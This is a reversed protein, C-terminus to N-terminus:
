GHLKKWVYIYMTIYILCELIIGLWTMFFNMFPGYLFIWILPFLWIPSLILVVLNNSLYNSYKKNLVSFILQHLHSSDAQMMPKHNHYRRMMSFILEFVPYFLILFAYWTILSPHESFFLITVFGVLLGICYAGLDGAFMKGIPYNFIISIITLILLLNYINIFSTSNLAHALILMSLLISIFSFYLIGNAGDILNFGNALVSLSIILLIALVFPNSLFFERLYPIDIIPLTTEILTLLLISSIVIATLRVKPRINNFIDEILTILVTPLLAFVSMRLLNFGAFDFVFVIISFFIFFISGGLRPTYGDHIKQVANYGHHFEKMLPDNWFKILWASLLIMACLIILFLPSSINIILM